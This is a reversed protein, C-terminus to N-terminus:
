SSQKTTNLANASSRFLLFFIENGSEAIKNTLSFSAHATIWMPWVHACIFRNEKDIFHKRQKGWAGGGERDRSVEGWNMTNKDLWPRGPAEGPGGWPLPGGIDEPGGWSPAQFYSPMIATPLQCDWSILSLKREDCSLCIKNSTKFILYNIQNKVYM